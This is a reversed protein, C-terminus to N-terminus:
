FKAIQYSVFYVIEMIKKKKNKGRQFLQQKKENRKKKIKNILRYPQKNKNATKVM